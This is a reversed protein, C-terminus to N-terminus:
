EGNMSKMGQVFLIVCAVILFAVSLSAHLSWDDTSHWYGIAGVLSAASLTHAFRGFQQRQDKTWARALLTAIFGTEVPVTEPVEGTVQFTGDLQAELEVEGGDFVAFATPPAETADLELLIMALRMSPHVIKLDAVYTARDSISLGSPYEVVLDVIEM